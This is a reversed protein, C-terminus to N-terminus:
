RDEKQLPQERPSEQDQFNSSTKVSWMVNFPVATLRDGFSLLEQGSYLVIGQFSRDKALNDRFWALHKFDGKGITSSAKVEIGLMAGDSKREVLFDIERQEWDRYHSLSLDRDNDVMAAIQTFAFTEILKGSRDPDLEVQDLRWDLIAAMLGSDSMFLKDAKGVRQYDTKTWAPLRDVLFLAELANIYAEVTPRKISLKDNIKAIDLFKSSWAALVTVLERMSQVNHIKRIERLDRDLLAEVYDKHWDERSEPSLTLVEPYGGRFALEFLESRSLKSRDNKLSGNLAHSLFDPEAGEIEGMALPRLRVKAIRGALSEKASPIANLNASGTLLYQGPRTDEDVIMKIASLLEPVHQIEDIILTRGEHTVFAAPDNRAARRLTEDDLTRYTVGDEELSRALTTKGCQRAGNLLVVRRDTLAKDIRRKQWRKFSNPM